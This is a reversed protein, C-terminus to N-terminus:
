GNVIEKNNRWLLLMGFLGFVAALGFVFVHSIYTPEYLVYIGKRAEGVVHVLPNLWLYQQLVLPVTEYNYFIASGIFLPRTVVAWIREWAPFRWFLYINLVGIGVALSIAMVYAWVVQPINLHVHSRSLPIICALLIAGIALQTLSNLVVRAAIADVYTVRPYYLLTKSFKISAATKRSIDMFAAFPLFGSAYYLAFSDGLMPARLAFSFAFTLLVVGGVPEALAWLYGASSRGYTSSMERFILAAVTRFGAYKLPSPVQPKAM